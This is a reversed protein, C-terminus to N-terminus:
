VGGPDDAVGNWGCYGAAAPAGSTQMKEECARRLFGLFNRSKDAGQFIGDNEDLYVDEPEGRESFAIVLKRALENANNIAFTAADEM